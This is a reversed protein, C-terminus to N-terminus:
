KPRVKARLQAEAMRVDEHGKGVKGASSTASSVQSAASSLGGPSAPRHACPARRWLPRGTGVAGGWGRSWWAGLGPPFSQALAPPLSLPLHARRMPLVRVHSVRTWSGCWARGAPCELGKPRSEDGKVPGELESFPYRLSSVWRLALEQSQGLRSGIGLVM